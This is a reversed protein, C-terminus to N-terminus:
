AIRKRVWYVALALLGIALAVFIATEISQFIWFHNAPHFAEVSHSGTTDICNKAGQKCITMTDTYLRSGDAAYLRDGLHWDGHFENRIVTPVAKGVM